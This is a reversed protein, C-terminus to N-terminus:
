FPEKTNYKKNQISIERRQGISPSQQGTEASTKSMQYSSTENYKFLASEPFCSKITIYSM